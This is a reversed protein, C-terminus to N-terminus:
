RDWQFAKINKMEEPLEDFFGWESSQEDLKIELSLPVASFVISVSHLSEDVMWSSKQRCKEYYGVPKLIKMPVGLEEKM